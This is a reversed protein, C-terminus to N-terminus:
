NVRMHLGSSVISLIRGGFHAKLRGTLEEEASARLLVFPNCGADFTYAAQTEPRSANFRHM